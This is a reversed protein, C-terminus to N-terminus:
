VSCIKQIGHNGLRSNRLVYEAFFQIYEIRLPRAMGEYTDCLFCYVVFSNGGWVEGRHANDGKEQKERIFCGVELGYRKGIRSNQPACNTALM